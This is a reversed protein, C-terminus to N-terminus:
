ARCNQTRREAILSIITLRKALADMKLSSADGNGSIDLEPRLREVNKVVSLPRANVIGDCGIVEKVRRACM